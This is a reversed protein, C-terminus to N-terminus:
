TTLKAELTSTRQKLRGPVPIVLTRQRALDYTERKRGSM